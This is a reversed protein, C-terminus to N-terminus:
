GKSLLKVGHVIKTVAGSEFLHRMSIPETADLDGKEIHYALKGLNLTAPEKLNNFRNKRFGWKPVRRSLASQGGEFGLPFGINARAHQGKHGKGATKGLGSGPGRGIRKRDRRAGYNDAINEANFPIWAPGPAIGCTTSFTRLM